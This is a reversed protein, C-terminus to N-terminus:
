MTVEKLLLWMYINSLSSSFNSHIVSILWVTFSPCWRGGPFFSISSYRPGPTDSSFQRCQGGQLQRWILGWECSCNSHLIYGVLFFSLANGPQRTNQAKCGSARRGDSCVRWSTGMRPAHLSTRSAPALSPPLRGSSLGAHSTVSKRLIGSGAVKGWRNTSGCYFITLTGGCM